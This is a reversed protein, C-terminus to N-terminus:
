VAKLAFTVAPQTEGEPLGLARQAAHRRVYKRAHGTNKRGTESTKHIRVAEVAMAHRVLLESLDPEGADYWDAAVGFARDPFGIVANRASAGPSRAGLQRYPRRAEDWRAVTRQLRRYEHRLLDAMPCDGLKAYFEVLEVLAGLVLRM